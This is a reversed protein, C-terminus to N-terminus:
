AFCFSAGLCNSALPIAAAIGPRARDKTSQLLRKLNIVSATLLLQIRFKPLGRYKCRGMLHNTKAEAIVGEIIVKRARSLKKGIASDLVERARRFHDGKYFVLTRGSKSTTCQKKLRCGDCQEKSWKFLYTYGQSDSRLSQHGAPCEAAEYEGLVKFDTQEFKGSRSHTTRPHICTQINQDQLYKLTEVGGYKSDAVGYSAKRGSAFLANTTLEAVKTMDDDNAKSAAVSLIVRKKGDVCFHAKYAPVAAGGGRRALQADPDTSSWIRDNVKGSKNRRGMKEPEVEGDFRDHKQEARDEEEEKEEEERLQKLFEDETRLKARFSSKAADARVLSSDMFYYDGSILEKKKCLYVIRKFFRDFVEVPFRYRSKTMISHHPIQEDLDYGLYWRYALNVQVERFLQRETRIGFFYCIVYFKFLVVPDISPKGEHSYYERTEKYLYRLDLEESIKRVPHDAPVLDDLTLEYFLKATSDKKGQM